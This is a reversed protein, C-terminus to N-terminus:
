RVQKDAGFSAVSEGPLVTRATLVPNRMDTAYPVLVACGLGGSGGARASRGSAVNWGVGVSWKLAPCRVHFM